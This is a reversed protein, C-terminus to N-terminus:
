EEGGGVIQPETVGELEDRLDAVTKELQKITRRQRRLDCSLDSIKFDM